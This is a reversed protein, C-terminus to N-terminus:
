ANRTWIQIRGHEPFRPGLGTTCVMASFRPVHCTEHGTEMGKELSEFIPKDAKVDM